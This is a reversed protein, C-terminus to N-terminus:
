RREAGKLRIDLCIFFYFIIPHPHPDSKGQLLQVRTVRNGFVCGMSLINWRVYTYYQSFRENEKQGWEREKRKREEGEEYCLSLAIRRLEKIINFIDFTVLGQFATLKMAAPLLYSFFLVEQLLSLYGLFYFHSFICFAFYFICICFVCILLAM